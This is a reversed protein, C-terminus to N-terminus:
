VGMSGYRGGIDKHHYWSKRNLWTFGENRTIVALDVDGGVGEPAFTLIRQFGTLHILSLALTAMSRVDYGELDREWKKLSNNRFRRLKAALADDLGKAAEAWPSGMVEFSDLGAEELLKGQNVLKYFKRMIGTSFSPGEAGMLIGNIVDKQAFPCIASPNSDSIRIIQDAYVHCNVNHDIGEAVTAPVLSPYEQDAGYGAFILQAASSHIDAKLIDLLTQLIEEKHKELLYTPIEPDDFVNEEKEKNEELYREWEKAIFKEFRELTYGSFCNQLLSGKACRKRFKKLLRLFEKEFLGPRKLGGKKNQAKSDLDMDHFINVILCELQFSAWSHDKGEAWFIESSQLFDFFDLVNNEVTPHNVNGRENRYRRVILEWPIRLFSANGTIMVSVPNASSLRLMKNGNKTIKMAEGRSRTVASDAALAVGRKNLMGIVATM